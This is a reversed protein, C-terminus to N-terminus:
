PLAATSFGVRGFPNKQRARWRLANCACSGGPPEELCSCSAFSACCSFMDVSPNPPALNGLQTEATGTTPQPVSSACSSVRGGCSSRCCSTATNGPATKHRPSPGSCSDVKLLVPWYCWGTLFRTKRFHVVDRLNPLFTAHRLPFESSEVTQPKCGLSM